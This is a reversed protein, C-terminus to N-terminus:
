GGLAELPDIKLVTRVSFLAGLVGFLIFAFSIIVYFLINISFPIVSQLFYGSVLTLSLGMLIGVLILVLTQIVVSGSIYLNSIGQAKMVGFINIKQITLVYIFISLVIVVIVILFAIMTTFTLVQASYGPLTNIYDNTDKYVLSEDLDITEGKVIIGSILNPPNNTGYRYKQWDDLNMYIVPATQYTINNSFSVIKFYVYNGDNPDIVQILDGINYGNKKLSDDVIVENEQLTIEIPKLFSNEEVGFFYVNLKLSDSVVVGPFLGLKAKEGLVNVENFKSETIYSMMM